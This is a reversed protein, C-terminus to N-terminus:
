KIETMRLLKNGVTSAKFQWRAVVNESQRSSMLILIVLRNFQQGMESSGKM